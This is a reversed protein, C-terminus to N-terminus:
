AEPLTEPEAAPPLPESESGALYVTVCVGFAILLDPRELELASNKLRALAGNAGAGLLAAALCAGALKVARRKTM